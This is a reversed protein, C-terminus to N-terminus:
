NEDATCLPKITEISDWLMVKVKNGSANFNRPEIPANEGNVLKEDQASISLLKGHADYAAFIVTYTSDENVTVVAKGDKYQISYKLVSIKETETKDCRSCTRTKEGETEITAPKTIEWASWNHAAPNIDISPIGDLALTAKSDEFVNKCGSCQWYEHNGMSSCTSESAPYHILTHVHTPIVTYPYNRSGEGYLVASPNFYFAPRIGVNSSEVIYENIENSLFAIRNLYDNNTNPTRLWYYLTSGYPEYYNDFNDYTTKVQQVDLLFMTDTVQESYAKSYNQVAEAVSNNYAHKESGTAGEIDKDYQTLISKQVVTKMVAKEEATFNSLFGAEDSYSPKNGCTYAVDGSPASSNLWDRINSDAWYNSGHASRNETRGHSGKTDEGSADFAKKCISTDALMLPLYGDKYETVTDTSDTIPNGNTDTGTIKEFAVCRWLVPEATGDENIDYTGMQIYAGLEIPVNEANALITLGAFLSTLMIVAMFISILKRKM